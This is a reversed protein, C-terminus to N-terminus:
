SQRKGVAPTSPKQILGAVVPMPALVPTIGPSTRPRIHQGRLTFDVAERWAAVVSDGPCQLAAMATTVGSTGRSPGRNPGPDDAGFIVLPADPSLPYSELLDTLAARFPGAAWLVQLPPFPQQGVIASLVIAFLSHHGGYNTTLQCHSKFASCAVPVSTYRTACQAPLPEVPDLV